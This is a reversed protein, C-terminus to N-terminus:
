EFVEAIMHAQDNADNMSIYVGTTNLNLEISEGPELPYGNMDGLNVVAANSPDAKILVSGAESVANSAFAGSGTITEQNFGSTNQEEAVNVEGTVTVTNVIDQVESITNLSEINDLPVPRQMYEINFNGRDIEVTADGSPAYAYLPNGGLDSLRVRDGAKVLKGEKAYQESHDFRVDSRSVEVIFRGNAQDAPVLEKTDGDTIEEETM